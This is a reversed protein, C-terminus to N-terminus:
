SGMRAAALLREATRQWTWERAVFASIGARLDARDDPNLDLLASAQRRWTFRTEVRTRGAAGMRLALDRDRILRSVSLGIAKPEAAEVLIGTRGDEVAEAAGGSRGAVVPKGTAGAELYVIGFGEVEM